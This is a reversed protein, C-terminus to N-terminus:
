VAGLAGRQNVFLPLVIQVKQCPGAREVVPVVVRGQLARQHVVDGLVADGVAQIQVGAGLRFEELDELFVNQCRPTQVVAQLEGAGGAGIRHLGRQLERALGGPAVINQG